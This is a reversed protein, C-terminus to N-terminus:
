AKDSLKVHHTKGDRRKCGNLGGRKGGTLTRSDGVVFQKEADKLNTRSEESKVMHSTVAWSAGKARIRQSTAVVM